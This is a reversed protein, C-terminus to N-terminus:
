TPCNPGCIGYQTATGQDDLQTGCAYEGEYSGCKYYTTGLYKFPFKCPVGIQPAPLGMLGVITIEASTLKDITLCVNESFIKHEHIFSKEQM